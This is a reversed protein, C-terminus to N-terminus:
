YSFTVPQQLIFKAQAGKDLTVDTKSNLGYLVGATLGLAGGANTGLWKGLINGAIMGVAAAIAVTGINNKRHEQVSDLKLYVVRTNGNALKMRDIVFSLEPKTGQGAKRVKVVRAELRAGAFLSNDDPYPKQVTFTFTEGVTASKSSVTSNSTAHILMGPQLTITKAAAAVPVVSTGIVFALSLLGAAIRLNM